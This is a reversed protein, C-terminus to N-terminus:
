FTVLSGSAMCNRHTTKSKSPVRASVSSSVMTMRLSSAASYPNRRISRWSTRPILCMVTAWNTRKRPMGAQRKGRRSVLPLRRRVCRNGAIRGNGPMASVMPWSRARMSMSPMRVEFETVLTSDNRLDCSRPGNSKMRDAGLSM